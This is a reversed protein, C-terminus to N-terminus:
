DFQWPLTHNKVDAYYQEVCNRAYRYDLGFMDVLKKVVDSDSYGDVKYANITAFVASTKNEMRRVEDLDVRTSYAISMAEKVEEVNERLYERLWNNKICIRITEEICETANMRHLKRQEDFTACFRSYQDLIGGDNMKHLVKVIFDPQAPAGGFFEKRLSIETNSVQESGTYLVFAEVKPAPVKGHGYVDFGKRALHTMLTDFYYQPLRLAINISWTSQAEVLLILVNRILLGLDNYAHYRLLQKISICEIDDVTVTRDEPFM